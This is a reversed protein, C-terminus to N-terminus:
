KENYKSTQRYKYEIAFLYPNYQTWEYKLPFSAKDWERNWHIGDGTFFHACFYQVVVCLTGPKLMCLACVDDTWEIEAFISVFKTCIAKNEVIIM